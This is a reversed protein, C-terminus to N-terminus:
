SQLPECSNLKQATCPHLSPMLPLQSPHLQLFGPPLRLIQVATPMSSSLVAVGSAAPGSSTSPLPAADPPGHVVLIPESESSGPPSQFIGPPLQLLADRQRASFLEEASRDAPPMAHKGTAAETHDGAGFHKCQRPADCRDCSRPAVRKICCMIGCPEYWTLLAVGVRGTAQAAIAAMMAAASRHAHARALLLPRASGLATM